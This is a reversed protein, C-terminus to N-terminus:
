PADLPEAGKAEGDAGQIIKRVRLEANKLRAECHARLKEGREYLDISKDLPVQANELQSVVSELEEMAQEFSMDAIKKESM